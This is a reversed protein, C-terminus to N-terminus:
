TRSALGLEVLKNELEVGTPEILVTDDGFVIVPISRYAKGTSEINYDIVERVANDVKDIDIYEYPIGLQDLSFMVRKCDGCWEAGYVRFEAKNSMSVALM